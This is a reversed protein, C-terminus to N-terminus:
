IFPIMSEYECGPVQGKAPVGSALSAGLGGESTPATQGKARPM